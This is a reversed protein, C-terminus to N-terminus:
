KEASERGGGGVEARERLEGGESAIDDDLALAVMRATSSSASKVLAALAASAASASPAEVDDRAEGDGEEGDGEEGDGDGNAGDGDGAAEGLSAGAKDSSSRARSLWAQTTTRRVKLARLTWSASM